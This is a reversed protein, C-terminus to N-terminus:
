GSRSRGRVAFLSLLSVAGVLYAVIMMRRRSVRDAVQGLLPSVLAPLGLAAFILGATGNSGTLDKVWVAFIIALVSDAFNTFGWAVTLFRFPRTRLAHKVLTAEDTTTSMSAVGRPDAARRHPLWPPRTRRPFPLTTPPTSRTRTSSASSGRRRSGKPRLEPHTWRGEFRDTIAQLELSLQTLEEPHGLVLEQDHRVRPAM